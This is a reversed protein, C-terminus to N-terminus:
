PAAELTQVSALALHNVFEQLAREIESRIDPTRGVLAAADDAIFQLIERVSYGAASKRKALELWRLRWEKRRADAQEKREKRASM